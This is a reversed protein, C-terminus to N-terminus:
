VDFKGGLEYALVKLHIKLAQIKHETSEFAKEWRLVNAKAKNERVRLEKTGARSRAEKQKVTGQTQEEIAIEMDKRYDTDNLAQEKAEAWLKGILGLIDTYVVIGRSVSGPIELDIKSVSRYLRNIEEVYGLIRKADESLEAPKNQETM